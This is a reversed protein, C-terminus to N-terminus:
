RKEPLHRHNQHGSFDPPRRQNISAFQRRNDLGNETSGICDAALCNRRVALLAEKNTASTISVCIM